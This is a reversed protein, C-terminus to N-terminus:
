AGRAKDVMVAIKGLVSEGAKMKALAANIADVESPITASIHARVSGATACAAADELGRSLLAKAADDLAGPETFTRILNVNILSAGKAALIDAVPSKTEARRTTKGPGVGLVVWRGGSRMMQSTAVFSAENYTTDYVLDVGKGDTLKAIEAAVDDKRYDFVHTAGSAKAL